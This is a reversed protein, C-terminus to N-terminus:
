GHCGQPGLPCKGVSRMKDRYNNMEEVQTRLQAETICQLTRISSGIVKYRKCFVIEGDKRLKVFDRAADVLNADVEAAVEAETVPKWDHASGGPRSITAENAAPPRATCAALLGLCTISIWIRYAM